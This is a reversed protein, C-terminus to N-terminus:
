TKRSCVIELKGEAKGNVTEKATELAMEYDSEDKISVYTGDEDKFKVDLLNVSISFKSSLMAMLELRSSDQPLALGRTEDGFRVKVRIKPSEAYFSGDEYDGSGYGEEEEDYSRKRQALSRQRSVATGRRRLGNNATYSSPPPRTSPSRSLTSESNANNRAWAAITNNRRIPAVPDEDRYTDIYDGYFDNM